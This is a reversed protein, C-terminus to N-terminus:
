PFHAGIKTNAILCTKSVEVSIGAKHLEDESYTCECSRVLKQVNNTKLDQTWSNTKRSSVRLCKKMSHDDPASMILFHYHGWSIPTPQYYM